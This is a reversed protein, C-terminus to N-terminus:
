ILVQLIRTHPVSCSNPHRLWSIPVPSGYSPGVVSGLVDRLTTGIIMSFAGIGERGIMLRRLRVVSENIRESGINASVNRYVSFGRMLTVMNSLFWDINCVKNCYKVTCDGCSKLSADSQCSQCKKNAIVSAARDGLSFFTQM